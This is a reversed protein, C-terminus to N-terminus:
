KYPAKLPMLLLLLPRLLGAASCCGRGQAGLEGADLQGLQGDFDYFTRLLRGTPAHILFATTHQSLLSRLFLPSRGASCSALAMEVHCCTATCWAASAKHLPLLLM